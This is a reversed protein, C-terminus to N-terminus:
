RTRPSVRPIPLHVHRPVHGYRRPRFQTLPREPVGGGAAQHPHVDQGPVQVPVPRPHTVRHEVGGPYRDARGCRPGAPPVHQGRRVPEPQDARVPLRVAPRPPRGSHQGVDPEVVPCAVRHAPEPRARHGPVPPGPRARQVPEVRGALHGHHQVPHGLGVAQAPTQVTGREVVDVRTIRPRPDAGERAIQGGARQSCRPIQDLRRWRLADRVAQHHVRVAAQPHREPTAARHAPVRRVTRQQGLQPHRHGLRGARREAARIEALQETVVAQSFMVSACRAASGIAPCTSCVRTSPTRPWGAPWNPPYSSM